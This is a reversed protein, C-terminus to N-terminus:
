ERQTYGFKSSCVGWKRTKGSFITPSRKRPSYSLLMLKAVQFTSINERSPLKSKSFKWPSKLNWIEPKTGWWQRLKSFPLFFLSTHPISLQKRGPVRNTWAHILETCSNFSSQCLSLFQDMYHMWASAQISEFSVLNKSCRCIFNSYQLEWGQFEHFLRYYYIM